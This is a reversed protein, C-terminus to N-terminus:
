DAQATYAAYLLEFIIQSRSTDHMIAQEDFWERMGATVTTSVTLSRSEIIDPLDSHRRLHKVKCGKPM